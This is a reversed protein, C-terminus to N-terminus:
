LSRGTDCASATNKGLAIHDMQLLDRRRIEINNGPETKGHCPVELGSDAFAFIGRGAGTGRRHPQWDRFACLRERPGQVTPIRSARHGGMEISGAGDACCEDGQLLRVSRSGYRPQKRDAPVNRCDLFCVAPCAAREAIGLPMMGFGPGPRSRRAVVAQDLRIEANIDPRDGRIDDHDVPLHPHKGLAIQRGRAPRDLRDLLPKRFHPGLDPRPHLDEAGPGRARSSVQGAIHDAGIHDPVLDRRLGSGGGGDVRGHVGDELDASLVRFIDAEPVARDDVELHVLGAGRAGAREKFLLRLPEADADLLLEFVPRKCAADGHLNPSRQVTNM